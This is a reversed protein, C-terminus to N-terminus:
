KKELIFNEIKNLSFFLGKIKSLGITEVRIDLENLFYEKMSKQPEPSLTLIIPEFKTKDLYKIIYSLQNVPGVKQLTSVLYLIKKM